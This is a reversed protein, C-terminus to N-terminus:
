MTMGGGTIYRYTSRITNTVRSNDENEVVVDQIVFSRGKANRGHYYEYDEKDLSEVFKKTILIFITVFIMVNIIKSFADSSTIQEQIIFPYNRMIYDFNYVLWQAFTYHYIKLVQKKTFERKALCVVEITLVM